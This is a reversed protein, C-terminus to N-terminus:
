KSPPKAYHSRLPTHKLPKISSASTDKEWWWQDIHGVMELGNLSDAIKHSAAPIDEATVFIYVTARYVEAM